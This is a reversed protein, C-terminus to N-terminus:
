ERILLESGGMGWKKKKAEIVFRTTNGAYIILNSRELTELLPENEFRAKHATRGKSGVILRVMHPGAPLSIRIDKLVITNKLITDDGKRIKKDTSTDSYSFVLVNDIYLLQEITNAELSLELERDRHVIIKSSLEQAEFLVLLSGPEAPAPVGQGLGSSFVASDSFEIRFVDKRAFALRRGFSTTISVSDADLAQITGNLMSGDRLYLKEGSSLLPILLM